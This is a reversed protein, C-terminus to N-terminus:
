NINKCLVYKIGIFKYNMIHSYNDMIQKFNQQKILQLDVKIIKNFGGNLWWNENNDKYICSVHDTVEGGLTCNLSIFYVNEFNTKILESKIFNNNTLNNTNEDNIFEITITKNKLNYKYIKDNIKNIKIFDKFVTKM